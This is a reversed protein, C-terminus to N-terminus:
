VRRPALQPAPATDPLAPIRLWFPLVGAVIASAAFVQWALAYSDTVDKIRGAMLLGVNMVPYMFPRMWGMVEGFRRAGFCRAILASWAPLVAGTGLGNAAAVVILIEFRPWALVLAMSLAQLVAALWLPARVDFRDGFASYALKGAVSGLALLSVLLAARQPGIGIDTAYPVLHVVLATNTSYLLGLAAAILWFSRERLASRDDAPDTDGEVPVVDRARSGQAPVLLWALPALTLASAAGLAFVSGRWGFSLLLAAAIPPILVGGLSTGTSAIGLAWAPAEAFRRVILANAPLSGALTAGVAMGMVLLVAIHWLAGAAAIAALGIGLWIGPM